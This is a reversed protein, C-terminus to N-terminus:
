DIETKLASNLTKDFIFLICKPIIQEKSEKRSFYVPFM